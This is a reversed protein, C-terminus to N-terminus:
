TKRLKHKVYYLKHHRRTEMRQKLAAVFPARQVDKAPFHAIQNLLIQGHVVIFREIRDPKKSVFTPAGEAAEALRKVVDAFSLRSARASDSLLGIVQVALRAAKLPM